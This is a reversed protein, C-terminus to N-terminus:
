ATGKFPDPSGLIRAIATAVDAEIEFPATSSGGNTAMRTTFFVEGVVPSLGCLLV